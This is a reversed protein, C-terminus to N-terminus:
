PHHVVNDLGRRLVVLQRPYEGRQGVRVAQRGHPVHRAVALRPARLDHLLCAERHGLRGEGMVQADQALRSDEGLADLAGLAVGPQPLVIQVATEGAQHVGDDVGVGAKGATCAGSLQAYLSGLADHAALDWTKGSLAREAARAREDAHGSLKELLAPLQQKALKSESDASRRSDGLVREVDILVDLGLIAQLADHM